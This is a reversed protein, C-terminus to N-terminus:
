QPAKPKPPPATAGNSSRRQNMNQFFDTAAKADARNAASPDLKAEALIQDRTQDLIAHLQNYAQKEQPTNAVGFKLNYVHMFGLLAGITTDKVKRLELLAPGINPKELLGLVSTCGTLFRQAEKQDEPDKLPQARLKDGFAQVFERAERLSRSSVEGGSTERRLKASLEDFTNKDNVFQEGEFVEPWKVSARIDDLMFTIRESAYIFPITAILSASVPINAARLASSGLRPNSLDQVALNLADGQEIDRQSPNDRLQRQRADYLSQNKAFQQNVRAAHDKTSQATVAAVYDNYRMATDANISRAQATDLNYMGAGMAFQAAGQLESGQLTSAGGGWGGWGWGGYGWQARANPATLSLIAVFGVALRMCRIM